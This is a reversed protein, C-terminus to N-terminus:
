IQPDALNISRSGAAAIRWLGPLNCDDLQLDENSKQAKSSFLEIKGEDVTVRANCYLLYLCYMLCYLKKSVIYIM